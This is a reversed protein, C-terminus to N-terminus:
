TKTKKKEEPQVNPQSSSAGHDLSSVPLGTTSALQPTAKGSSDDQCGVPWNCRFWDKPKPICWYVIRSNM